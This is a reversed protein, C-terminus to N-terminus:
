KLKEYLILDTLSFPTFPFYANYSAVFWFGDVFSHSVYRGGSNYAGGAEGVWAGAWPSLREITAAVDRYTEAIQDLFSPDQIKNILTPDVGVCVYM